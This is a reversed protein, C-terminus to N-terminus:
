QAAAQHSTPQSGSFASPEPPPPPPPSPYPPRPPPPPPPPSPYPPRPPPSPRPDDNNSGGTSTSSSTKGLFDELRDCEIAMEFDEFTGCCQDDVFFQPTLTMGQQGSLLWLILILPPTLVVDGGRLVRLGKNKIGHKM